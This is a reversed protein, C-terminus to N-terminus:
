PRSPWACARAAEDLGDDDGDATAPAADETSPAPPMPQDLVEYLAAIVAPLRGADEDTGVFGYVAAGKESPAAEPAAGGAASAEGTAAPEAPTEAPAAASSGDGPSPKPTDTIVDFMMAQLLALGTPHKGVTARFEPDASSLRAEKADSAVGLLYGCTHLYVEDDQLAGRFRKALRFVADMVRTRFTPTALCFPPGDASCSQLLELASARPIEFSRGLVLLTDLSAGASEMALPGAARLLARAVAEDGRLASRGGGRLGSSLSGQRAKAVAAPPVIVVTLKHRYDAILRRMAPLSAAPFAEQARDGSDSWVWPSSSGGGGPDAMGQAVLIFSEVNRDLEIYRLRLLTPDTVGPELATVDILRNRSDALSKLGHLECKAAWKSGLTVTYSGSQFENSHEARMVLVGALVAFVLSCCLAPAARRLASSYWALRDFPKGHAPRRRTSAKPEDDHSVGRRRTATAEM